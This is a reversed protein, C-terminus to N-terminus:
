SIKKVAKIFVGDGLQSKAKETAEQRNKAYIHTKACNNIKTSDRTSWLVVFNSM